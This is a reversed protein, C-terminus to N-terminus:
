GYQQMWWPKQNQNFMNALTSALNNSKLLGYNANNSGTDGYLANQAGVKNAWQNYYDKYANNAYNQNYESAAKLAKGSFLSGEAGLAKNLGKQGQELNFQYGPQSTIQSPDFTELNQLQKLNALEQAKKAKKIAADNAFGGVANALSSAALSNSLSSGM